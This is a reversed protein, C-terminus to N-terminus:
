TAVTVATLICLKHYFVLDIVQQVFSRPSPVLSRLTEMKKMQLILIVIAAIGLHQKFM